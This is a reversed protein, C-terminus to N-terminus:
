IKLSFHVLNSKPPPDAGSGAPLGQMAGGSARYSCSKLPGIYKYPFLPSSFSPFSYLLPSNVVTDGLRRPLDVGIRYKTILLIVVALANSTQM